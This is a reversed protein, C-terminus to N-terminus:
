GNLTGRLLSDGSHAPKNDYAEASVDVLRYTRLDVNTPLPLLAESNDDVTGISFMRLTKPDILWVEYYGPVAPLNEVRLRLRGDKGVLATGSAAPPTRGYAALQASAVVAPQPTPRAAGPGRVAVLTGVVGVAVAAAATVATGAWRPWRRSRRPASPGSRAPRATSPRSGAPVGSGGARPGAPRAGAPVGSGAGGPLTGAAGPGSDGPLTGAAGSGAEGPLTEVAAPGAAHPLTGAREGAVAAGTSQGEAAAVALRIGEWIHEPPAPLRGLDQTEAGLGAVERLSEYESRCRACAALHGTDAEDPEIEGLALFVLREHEPHQM